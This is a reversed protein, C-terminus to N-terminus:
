TLPRHASDIRGHVPGVRLAWQGHVGHAGTPKQPRLAPSAQGRTPCTIKKGESPPGGFM